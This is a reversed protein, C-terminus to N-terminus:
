KKFSQLYVPYNEIRIKLYLYFKQTIISNIKKFIEM